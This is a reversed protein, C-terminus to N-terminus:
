LHPRRSPQRLPQRAELRLRADAEAVAAERARRDPRNAQATGALTEAEGDPAPPVTLDGRLVFPPGGVMGLASRLESSAATLAIRSQGLLARSDDIETRLIILDAPQLKGAKLLGEGDEYTRQNLAITDLVLKNKQYRYVVADFARVM